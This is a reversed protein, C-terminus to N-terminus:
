KYQIGEPNKFAFRQDVVDWFLLGRRLDCCPKSKM